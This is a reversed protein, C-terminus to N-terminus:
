YFLAEVREAVAAMQIIPYIQAMITPEAVAGVQAAALRVSHIMEFISGRVAQGPSRQLITDMKQQLGLNATLGEAVAGPKVLPPRLLLLGM